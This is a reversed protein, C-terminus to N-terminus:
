VKVPPYDKKYISNAQLTILLNDTRLNNPVKM